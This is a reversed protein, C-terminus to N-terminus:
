SRAPDLGGPLHVHGRGALSWLRCLEVVRRYAMWASVALDCCGVVVPVIIPEIGIRSFHVHWRLTALVAAALLPLAVTIRRADLRQLETGLAYVALVGLCVLSPLRRACPWRGWRPAQWGSSALPSRM